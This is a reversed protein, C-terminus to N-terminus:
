CQKAILSALQMPASIDELLAAESSIGKVADHMDTVLHDPGQLQLNLVNFYTAIYPLFAFECQWKDEWLVRSDKGKNTWSCVSKKM